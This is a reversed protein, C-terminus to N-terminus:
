GTGAIQRTFEAPTVSAIGEGSNVRIKRGDIFVAPTGNMREEHFARGVKDVWPMYTLEKVAKNFEPTRLGPVQDALELLTATSAFTDQSEKRPHNAFLVPPVGRM